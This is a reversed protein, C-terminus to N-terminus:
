TSHPRQDHRLGQNLTVSFRLLFGASRAKPSAGKRIPGRGTATFSSPRSVDVVGDREDGALSAIPWQVGGTVSM